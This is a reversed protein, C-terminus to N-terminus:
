RLLASLAPKDLITIKKGAAHIIKDNHLERMVRALSPRSVGFMSALENQTNKIKLDTTGEVRVQELLYHAIKGRISQLGLLRIQKSLHQTRNSIIDLYNKLVIENKRFLDMLDHKSVLLLKTEELAIIDVPFKNNEGFMFASAITNPADLKEIRLIKGQFDLMEGVVSGKVIIMLSSCVEGSSVILDGKNYKKVQHHIDRIISGIKEPSLNRFLYNKGLADAYNLFCFSCNENCPEIWEKKDFNREM